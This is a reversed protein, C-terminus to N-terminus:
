TFYTLKEKTSYTLYNDINDETLTIPLVSPNLTYSYNLQSIIHSIAREIPRVCTEKIEADLKGILHKAGGGTITIMSPELNSEKLRRPLVHNQVISVLQSSSPNEIKVIDLRDRLTVDINKQDNMSFWFWIKSLDIPIENMYDDRFDANTTYDTIHLLAYMVERGKPTNSLKDIEDFLIIGNSCKMRSLIQVIISPTSGVWYNRMGKFTTADELGGLSIREFPVGLSDAVLKAITTKGTGPKGELAITAKSSPNALRDNLIYLIHQKVDNMGHIHMDLHTKVRKCVEAYGSRNSESCYPIIKGYPISIMWTIKDRINAYESGRDDFNILQVYYQYIVKKIDEPAELAKIKTLIISEESDLEIDGYEKNEEYKKIQKSMTERLLFSDGSNGGSDLIQALMYKKFLDFRFKEPLDSSLIRKYTVMDNKYLELMHTFQGLMDKDMDTEILGQVITNIVAKVTNHADEDSDEEELEEEESSFDIKEPEFLEDDLEDDFHVRKNVNSDEPASRKRKRLNYRHAAVDM